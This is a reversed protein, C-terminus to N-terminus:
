RSNNLTVILRCDMKRLVRVRGSACFMDVLVEVKEFIMLICPLECEHVHGCSVVGRVEERLGKLSDFVLEM